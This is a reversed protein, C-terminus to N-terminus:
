SLCIRCYSKLFSLLTRCCRLYTYCLLRVSRQGATMASSFSDPQQLASFIDNFIVINIGWIPISIHLFFFFYFYWIEMRQYLEKKVRLPKCYVLKSEEEDNNRVDKWLVSSFSKMGLNLTARRNSWEYLVRSTASLSFNHKHQIHLCIYLYM